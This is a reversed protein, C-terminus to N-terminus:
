RALLAKNKKRTRWAKVAALHRIEAKSTKKTNDIAKNKRRTDWAKHAATKRQKGILQNLEVKRAKLKVLISKMQTTM